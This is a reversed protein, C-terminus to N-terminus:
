GGRRHRDRRDLEGACSDAKSGTPDFFQLRHAAIPIICCRM